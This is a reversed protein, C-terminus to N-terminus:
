FLDFMPLAEGFYRNRILNTLQYSECGFGRFFRVLGFMGLWITWGLTATSVIEANICAGVRRLM